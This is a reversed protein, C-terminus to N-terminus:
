VRASRVPSIGLMVACRGAAAEAAATRWRGLAEAPSVTIYMEGPRRQYLM